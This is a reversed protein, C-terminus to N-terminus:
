LSVTTHSNTHPGTAPINAFLAQEPCRQCDKLDESRFLKQNSAAAKPVFDYEYNLPVPPCPPRPPPTDDVSVPGLTDNQRTMEASSISQTKDKHLVHVNSALMFCTQLFFYFVAQSPSPSQRPKPGGLGIIHRTQKRWDYDRPSAVSNLVQM